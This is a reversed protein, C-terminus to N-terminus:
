RLYKPRGLRMALVVAIGHRHASQLILPDDDTDGLRSNRLYGQRRTREGM